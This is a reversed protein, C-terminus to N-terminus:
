IIYNSQSYDLFTSPNHWFTVGNNFINKIKQMDEQPIDGTINLGVTKVFNWNLRGEINPLKVKNTKYGFMDFYSDIASAYQPKICMHYFSIENQNFAYVLDGVNLNGNAQSPMFSHQYKDVMVGFIDAVGGALNTLGSEVIEADGSYVGGGVQAIGGVGKVLGGVETAMLNVANQTLWNTYSDGIWAGIPFKSFNIGEIFNDNTLGKYNQPVCKMSCGQSVAGYCNFHLTNKGANPSPSPVIDPVFDEYHYEVTEGTNNTALMYRYPYCLLKNNRPSYSAMTRDDYIIARAMIQAYRNSTSVYYYIKRDAGDAFFTLDKTEKYSGLIEIPCMFVAVVDNIDTGTTRGYRSIFALACKYNEYDDYTSSSTPMDVFWQFYLGNYVGNQLNANVIDPNAASGDTNLQKTTIVCIANNTFGVASKEQNCIFEGYNVDEPILNSGISDDNTHEREIFSPKYNIEFKWSQLVDTEIKIETMGDNVYKIDTIFAYFWKNDYSSNQYMCYNYGLLDEFTIGNPETEYRIVGEKRQYTCNDYELHPLSLFYSTQANVDSFTLQNRNDIEIPSKLLRIRSNPVVVM